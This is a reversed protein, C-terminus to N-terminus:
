ITKEFFETGPGLLIPRYMTYEFFGNTAVQMGGTSMGLASTFGVLGPM